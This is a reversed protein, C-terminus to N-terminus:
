EIHCWPCLHRLDLMASPPHSFCGQHFIVQHIYPLTAYSFYAEFILYQVVETMSFTNESQYLQKWTFEYNYFKLKCSTSSINVGICVGNLTILIHGLQYTHYYKHYINKWSCQM